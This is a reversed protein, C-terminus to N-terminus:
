YKTYWDTGYHRDKKALSDLREIIDDVDYVKGYTLQVKGFSPPESAVKIVMFKDGGMMLELAGGNVYITNGTGGIQFTPKMYGLRKFLAEIHAIDAHHGVLVTE